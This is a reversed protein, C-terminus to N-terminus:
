RKVRPKGHPKRTLAALTEPSPKLGRRARDDGQALAKVALAAAATLANSAAGKVPRGAAKACAAWEGASLPAYYAKPVNFGNRGDNAATVVSAPALHGEGLAAWVARCEACTYGHAALAKLIGTAARGFLEGKRAFPVPGHTAATYGGKGAVLAAAQAKSAKASAKRTSAKRTSAKRTTM